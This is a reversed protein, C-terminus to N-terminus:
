WDLSLVDYKTTALAELAHHANRAFVTMPICDPLGDTTRAHAEVREKVDNAIRALYPLSFEEFQAKSLEGGWSEFVKVNTPEDITTFLPVVAHVDIHPLTFTVIRTFEDSREPQMCASQRRLSMSSRLSLWHVYAHVCVQVLQAGGAVVQLTLYEICINTIADLLRHSAEPYRFLWTKAKSLTRSGGGEIMYAMLTWPAGCFGILPVQGAITARTLNLADFVYGLTAEM